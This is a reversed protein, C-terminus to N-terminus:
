SKHIRRRPRSIRTRKPKALSKEEVATPVSAMPLPKVEPEYVNTPNHLKFRFGVRGVHFIDGHELYAQKNALRSFNVWTGAITGEDSIVYDGRRTQRLKTHVPEISADDLPITVMDQNTGITISRSTIPIPATPTLTDTVSGNTVRELYAYPTREKEKTEGWTLRNTLSPTWWNGRRSKESSTGPVPQTVPDVKPTRRARSSLARIAQSPQAMRGALVFVLILIAGAMLVAAVAVVPLNRSLSATFGEPVAQVTIDVPASLSLSSLGLEDVAEVVLDVRGSEQVDSIDWDFLTFPRTTNEAVIEGNAYLTTRVLARPYGDPFEILTEVQQITPSYRIETERIDSVLSRYIETPPTIFFPNPPQVNLEFERPSSTVSTDGVTAELVLEQTGAQLIGSDYTLLYVNRQPALYSELSPIPEVGSFPFFAGGTQVALDQLTLAGVTEFFTDPAIMWVFVKVDGNLARDRLSEILPVMNQQPDPTLFLVSRGMGERPPADLALDIARALLQINSVANRYDATATENLTELWVEHGVHPVEPGNTIVLSLDDATEGQEQGWADLAALLYEYRSVGQADRIAFTRGPDIALVFQVGPSQEVFSTFAVEAGNERLVVDSATLGSVFAGDSGYVHALASIEPFSDTNPISIEAIAASQASVFVPSFLAFFFLGLIAHSKKM